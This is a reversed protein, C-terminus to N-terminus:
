NQVITTGPPLQKMAPAAKPAARRGPKKLMGLKMLQKQTREIKRAAAAARTIANREGGTLLPPRGKPWARESNRIDRKNYCLRDKGLVMGPLCTRHVVAETEPAMAAGYRGMVAVGGMAGGIDIDAPSGPARCQGDQDRQTGPSCPLAFGNVLSGPKQAILAETAGAARLLEDTMWEHGKTARTHRHLRHVRTGALQADTFQPARRGGGGLGIAGAIDLATSGGPILGILGRGIRKHVFSECGPLAMLDVM